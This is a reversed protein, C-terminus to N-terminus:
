SFLGSSLTPVPTLLRELVVGAYCLLGAVALHEPSMVFVEGHQRYERPRSLTSPASYGTGPRLRLCPPAHPSPRGFGIGAQTGALGELPLPSRPHDLAVYDARSM